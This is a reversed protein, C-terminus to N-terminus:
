PKSMVLKLRDMVVSILRARHEPHTGVHAVGDGNKSFALGARTRLPSNPADFGHYAGPYLTVPVNWRKGVEICADSPTWDDVDGMHMELPVNPRPGEREVFPRCGPYIAFAARLKVATSTPAYAARVAHLLTSGGNSWGILAVRDAAAWPQTALWDLAAQVDRARRAPNIDRDPTTCQSGLGRSGFSDVLLVAYGAAQFRKAWDTDRNQLRGSPTLMGGCGHLMVVTAHKGDQASPMLLISRVPTRDRDRSPFTVTAYEPAIAPAASKPAQAHTATAACALGLSIAVLRTLLNLIVGM